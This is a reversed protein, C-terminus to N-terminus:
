VVVPTTVFVVVARWVSGFDLDKSSMAVCTFFPHKMQHIGGTM